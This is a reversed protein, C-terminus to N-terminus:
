SHRSLLKKSSPAKVCARKNRKAAAIELAAKSIAIERATERATEAESEAKVEAENLAHAQKVKAEKLAHAQEDSIIRRRSGGRPM